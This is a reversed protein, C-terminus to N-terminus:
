AQVGRHQYLAIQLPHVQGRALSRRFLHNLRAVTAAQAAEPTPTLATALGTSAAGVGDGVATAPAPRPDTAPPSPSLDAM